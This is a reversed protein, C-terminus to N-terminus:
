EFWYVGDSGRNLACRGVLGAQLFRFTCLLFGVECDNDSTEGSSFLGHSHSDKRLM